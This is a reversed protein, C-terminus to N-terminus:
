KDALLKGVAEGLAEGRLNTDAIKGDPGILYTAPIGSIGYQKAYKTNWAEGDFMQPWPLEHKAIFKKLAEEDKDLSIALVEFGKQHYDEYAKKVNPLENICPGCWTAWFDILVVKGSYDALNIATDSGYATFQIDIVDGVQPQSFPKLLGDLFGSLQDIDSHEAFDEKIRAVLAEAAAKDKAEVYSEMLPRAVEMAVQRPIGDTGKPMGEYRDLILATVKETNGAETYSGILAALGADKDDADPHTELYAELAKAKNTEFKTIIDKVSEAQAATALLALLLLPRIHKM